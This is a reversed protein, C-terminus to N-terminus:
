VGIGYDALDTIDYMSNVADLSALAKLEAVIANLENIYLHRKSVGTKPKQEPAPRGDPLERRDKAAYTQTSLEDLM